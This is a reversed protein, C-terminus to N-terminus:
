NVGLVMVVGNSTLFGFPNYGPTMTASQGIFLTGALSPASPMLLPVAAVSGPTAFQLLVDLAAYLECGPMQITGGGPLVYTTLNLGPNYQTFSLILTGLVTGTPMNSTTLNITTGLIPRASANLALGASNSGCLSFPTALATAINISGPDSAGGGPTYGVLCENGAATVAQYIVHVTGSPLFQYQFTVTGGGSFNPVAVWTVRVGSASSDVRVQGGAGPNLDHWLAAWRPSGGLFSSVTPDYATGNSTTSVFGNSCVALQNTTGGPYPLAFPLSVTAESDDTLGLNAGTPAVYTGTGAGVTYANNAYTMTFSSNALNFAAPNTFFQYFSRECTIAGCGHGTNSLLAAPAGSPVLANVSVTLNGPGVRAEDLNSVGNSPAYNADFGFNYITNWNLPNSAPATFVVENGVRAGSWQNLLNTDIDRFSYNSSTAAADIPVRFTAGGRNNDMNHVAYEYHYNGGGLPTVKCAVFFRGDDSGNSASNLIAGTWHQLISGYVQGIGNNSFSWTGASYVPNFGRSANNDGRNALAEGQHMLHIGYFYQAGVTTLDAEKVTVRNKVADFAAIQTSTLSRLGDMAAAGGVNPDGRDFYSAVPNWTGLWPDLEVPPGLYYQDANNYESYTDACHIGMVAGTGPNICTGCAGSYNTSVFAHKCYSWDNIQEIRDNSRRVILFAFKPHNPQMTAQWPLTVTGPNCMENLMSMGVEGGPYAAGRRGWYTLNDVISLRGDLGVVTNSQAALSGAIASAISLLAIRNM